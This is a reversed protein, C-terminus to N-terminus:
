LLQQWENSYQSQGIAKWLIARNVENSNNNNLEVAKLQHDRSNKIIAHKDDSVFVNLLSSTLLLTTETKSLRMKDNYRAELRINSNNLSKLKTIAKKM